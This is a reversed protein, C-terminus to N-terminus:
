ALAPSIRKVVHNSIAPTHRHDPMGRWLQLTWSDWNSGDADVLSWDYGLRSRDPLGCAGAILVPVAFWDSKLM